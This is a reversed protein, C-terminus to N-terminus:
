SSTTPVSSQALPKGQDAATLGALNNNYPRETQQCRKVRLLECGGDLGQGEIDGGAGHGWWGTGEGLEGKERPGQAM